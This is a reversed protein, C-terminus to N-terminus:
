EATQDWIIVDASGGPKGTARLTVTNDGEVMWPAIDLNRIEGPALNQIKLKAGNVTVELHLLGPDGNMVTVKDEIRPVDTFTLEVSRGAERVVLTHIPDCIAVNGALDTARIEIRARKTQDIKTSTVTVPDTTGVTFPPVVTDANESKVVLIEALGSGTDQFTTIAQAPPGTVVTTPCTPPQTDLQQVRVAALVWLLSDPNENVPLSHFQVSTIGIGAPIDVTWTEVDWQPGNSGNLENFVTANNSITVHDPRDLTGDGAFLWLDAARASLNAGHDLDAPATVRNDGPTPDPGFALDLGDWVVVRYVNPDAPDISGVLLGVGDLRWLNSAPDGDGFSFTHVGAGAAAVMSTVDVFYGINLIPGGGSVPQTETGIVTGSVPAGAFSMLQDKFPEAFPCDTGTGDLGCPRERGAWYLLAFRVTGHVEVTLDVPGGTWGMLGAGDGSLTLGAQQLDIFPALHTSRGPAAFSALGALIMLLVIPTRQTPTRM